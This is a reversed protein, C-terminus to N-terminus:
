DSNSDGGYDIPEYDYIYQYLRSYPRVPKKSAPIYNNTFHYVCGNWRRTYNYQEKPIDTPPYKGPYPDHKYQCTDIVNNIIETIINKVISTSLQINNTVIQKNKKKRRKKHKKPM